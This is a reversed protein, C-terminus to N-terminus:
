HICLRQSPLSLMASFWLNFDLINITGDRNVDPSTGARTVGTQFAQIWANFDNIGVCGDHDIDAALPILTPSPIRTPTATPFPTGTPPPPITPTPPQSPTPTPTPPLSIIYQLSNKAVTLASDFSPSTITATTFSISGQETNAGAALTISALHIIGNIVQNTDTTVKSFRVTHAGNSINNFIKSNFKQAGSGENVQSLTLEQGSITITLDFGSINISQADLYLDVIGTTNTQLVTSTIPINSGQKTFFLSVQEGAARQRIDQQHQAFFVTIPLAAVILLLLLASVTKSANSSM